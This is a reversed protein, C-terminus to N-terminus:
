RPVTRKYDPCNSCKHVTTETHAPHNCTFVKLAVQRGDVKVKDTRDVDGLFDCDQHSGVGWLTRYRHDYEALWCLRCNKLDMCICPRNM